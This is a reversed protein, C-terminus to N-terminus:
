LNGAAGRVPHDRLVLDVCQSTLDLFCVIGLEQSSADYEHPIEAGPILGPIQFLDSRIGLLFGKGRDYRRLGIRLAPQPADCLGMGHSVAVHLESVPRARRLRGSLENRNDLGLPFQDIAASSKSTTITPDPKAPASIAFSSALRPLVTAIRSAPSPIGGFM